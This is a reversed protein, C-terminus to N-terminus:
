EIYLSIFTVNLKRLSSAYLCKVFVHPLMQQIIVSRKKMISYIQCFMTSYSLKYIEKAEAATKVLIHEARVQTYNDEQALAFNSLLIISCLFKCLNKIM